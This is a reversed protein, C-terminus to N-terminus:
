QYPKIFSMSLSWLLRFKVYIFLILNELWRSYFNSKSCNFLKNPGKLIFLSWFLILSSRGLFWTMFFDVFIHPNASLNNSMSYEVHRHHGQSLCTFDSSHMIVSVPRSVVPWQGPSCSHLVVLNIDDVFYALVMHHPFTNLPRLVCCMFLSTLFM